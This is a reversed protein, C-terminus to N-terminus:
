TWRCYAALYDDVVIRIEVGAGARVHFRYRGQQVQLWGPDGQYIAMRQMARSGVEPWIDSPEPYEFFEREEDSLDSLPRIVLQDPPEHQGEGLEFLAHGQALKVIVASVREYEAQFQAGTEVTARARELRARLAPKQSLIRRIKERPMKAPDTSGAVVCSLLCALYEEDASFSGNCRRCAPVVPLNRPYPEDLFVRSPCHDRTGTEGACFACAAFHREDAYSRLDEM